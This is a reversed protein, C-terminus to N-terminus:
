VLQKLTLHSHTTDVLNPFWKTLVRQSFSISLWPLQETVVTKFLFEGGPSEALTSIDLKGPATKLESYDLITANDGLNNKLGKAANIGVDTDEYDPIIVIKKGELLQRNIRTLHTGSIVAAPYGWQRLTLWDFQGEVLFIVPSHRVEYFGQIPKPMRTALYKPKDNTVTRGTMFDCQGPETLNPVTIRHSLQEFSGKNTIGIEVALGVEHATNLRLVHGDTYGLKYKVITEENLGRKFLYNLAGPAAMLFEHYQMAVDYLFKFTETTNRIKIVQTKEVKPFKYDEGVYELAEKTSWDKYEVLFKVADGWAECGFCFYTENPYITLSPEHDGTHFPCRIKRRGSGGDFIEFGQEGIVETLTKAM